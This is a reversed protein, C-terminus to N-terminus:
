GSQLWGVWDKQVISSSHSLPANKKLLKVRWIPYIIVPFHNSQEKGILDGEYVSERKDGMFYLKISNYGKRHAGHHQSNHKRFGIKEKRFCGKSVASRTAEMESSTSWFVRPKVKEDACLVWEFDAMKSFEQSPVEWNKTIPEFRWSRWNTMTDVWILKLNWSRGCTWSTQPSM